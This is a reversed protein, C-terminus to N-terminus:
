PEGRLVVVWTGRPSDVYGVVTLDRAEHSSRPVYAREGLHERVIADLADPDNTASEYVPLGMMMRIAADSM